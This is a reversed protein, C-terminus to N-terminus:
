HSFYYEISNQSNQSIKSLKPADKSSLYRSFLSRLGFDAFTAIEAIAYRYRTQTGSGQQMNTQVARLNQPVRSPVLVSLVQVPVSVCPYRFETSTQSIWHKPKAPSLKPVSVTSNHVLVGIRTSTTLLVSVTEKM